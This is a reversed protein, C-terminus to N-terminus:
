SGGGGGQAAELQETRAAQGKQYPMWECEGPGPKEGDQVLRVRMRNFPIGTPDIVMLNVMGNSHVAAVHAAYREQEDGDDPRYWVVRGVTPVIM